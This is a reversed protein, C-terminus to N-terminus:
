YPDRKNALTARPNCFINLRILSTNFIIIIYWMAVETGDRHSNCSGKILESQGKGFAELNGTEYEQYLKTNIYIM